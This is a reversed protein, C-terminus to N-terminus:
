QPYPSTGGLSDNTHAILLATLCAADTCADRRTIFDRDRPPNERSVEQGTANEVAYLWALDDLRAMRWLDPNQAEASTCLIQHAPITPADCGIDSLVLGYGPELDAIRAEVASMDVTQAALPLATLCILGFALPLRM